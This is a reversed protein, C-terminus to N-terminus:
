FPWLLEELQTLNRAKSEWDSLAIQRKFNSFRHLLHL